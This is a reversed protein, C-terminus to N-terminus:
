HPRTGLVTVPRTAPNIERTVGAWTLGRALCQEDLAAYLAAMGFDGPRADAVSAM